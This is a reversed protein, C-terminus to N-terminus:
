TAFFMSSPSSGDGGTVRLFRTIETASGLAGRSKASREDARPVDAAALRAFVGSDRAASSESVDRATLAGDGAALSPFASDEATVSAGATAGAVVRGGACSGAEPPAGRSVGFVATTAATAGFGEDGVVGGNDPIWIVWLRAQRSTSARCHM